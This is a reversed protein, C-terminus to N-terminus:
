GPPRSFRRYLSVVWLLVGAVFFGMLALLPPTPMRAPETLNAQVVLYHTALIFALSLCAFWLSHHFFFDFTAARREPALWYARHPVNVTRVPSSRIVYCLGVVFLPLGAGLVAIFTLYGARSMWGNAQGSWDFHTAVQEPLEGASFVGYAAGILYLVALLLVRLRISIMLTLGQPTAQKHAAKLFLKFTLPFLITL